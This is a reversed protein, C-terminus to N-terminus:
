ISISCGIEGQKAFLVHHGEVDHEKGGYRVKGETWGWVVIYENFSTLGFNLGAM